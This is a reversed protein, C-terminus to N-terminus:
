NKGQLQSKLDIASNKKDKQALGEEKKKCEVIKRM